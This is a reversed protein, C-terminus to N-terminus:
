YADQVAVHEARGREAGDDAQVLRDAGVREDLQRDVARGDDRADRRVPTGRDALRHGRRDAGRLDVQEVRDAAGADVSGTMLRSDSRSAQRSRSGSGIAWSVISSSAIHLGGPSSRSTALRRLDASSSAPAFTWRSWSYGDLGLTIASSPCPDGVMWHCPCMSAM